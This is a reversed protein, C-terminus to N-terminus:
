WGGRRGGTGEGATGGERSVTRGTVLEGGGRGEGGPPEGAGQLGVEEATGSGLDSNM